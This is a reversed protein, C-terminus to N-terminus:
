DGSDPQIINDEQEKKL